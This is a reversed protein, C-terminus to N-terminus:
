DKYIIKWNKTWIGRFKSNAIVIGNDPSNYLDLTNCEPYISYLSSIDVYNLGYASSLMQNFGCSYKGEFNSLDLSTIKDSYCFMFTFDNVSSTNFSSLDVKMLSDCSSFMSDMSQVNSTDFSENFVIDVLDSCKYLLNQM